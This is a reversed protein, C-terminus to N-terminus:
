LYPNLKVDKAKAIKNISSRVFHLNNDERKSAEWDSTLVNMVLLLLERTEEKTM